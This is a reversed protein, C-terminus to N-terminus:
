DERDLPVVLSARTGKGPASDFRLSGGLFEIKQQANFLGFGGKGFPDAGSVTQELGVGDDAVVIVLDNQERRLFIEAQNTRAHKVVNLLLERVAQYVTSRVEYRLPKQLEDDYFAVQLAHTKKLEEGLWQLAAELGASALIPPRMQFLLSRLDQISQGVLSGVAEAEAQLAEEELRDSLADLKMKGLILRQGVQDHLEGAIRNREREEALSLEVAAAQLRKQHNLIEGEIRERVEIEQSLLKNTQSLVATRKKVQLELEGKAQILLEESKQLLSFSSTLKRTGLLMGGLGLIWVFGHGLAIQGMGPHLAERIEDIPVLVEVGGRIEGKHYGQQAHCTLCGSETMAVRILRMVPRGHVMQIESVEKAGKEFATLAKREWPDPANAPNIPKLSVLRGMGGRDTEKASGFAQRTLYAANILTLKKGSPTTLDREPVHALLPNPPVKPTVAVYVGGQQSVWRRFIRDREFATVAKVRALERLSTEHQRTNWALSAAVLLTWACALLFAYRWIRQHRPTTPKEVM